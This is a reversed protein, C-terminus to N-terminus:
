RGSAVSRAGAGAISGVRHHPIRVASPPIIRNVYWSVSNLFPGRCAPSGGEEARRLLANTKLIHERLGELADAVENGEQSYSLIESTPRKQRSQKFQKRASFRATTPQGNEVAWLAHCIGNRYDYVTRARALVGILPRDKDPIQSRHRFAGFLSDHRSGFQQHHVLIIASTVHMESYISILDTMLADLRCCAIILRGIAEYHEPPFIDSAPESM